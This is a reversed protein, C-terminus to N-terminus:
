CNKERVSGNPRLTLRVHECASNGSRYILCLAVQWRFNKIGRPLLALARGIKTNRLHGPSFGHGFSLLTDGLRFL